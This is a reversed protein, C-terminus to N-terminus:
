LETGFKSLLYAYFMVGYTGGRGKELYHADQQLIRFLVTPSNCKPFPKSKKPSPEVKM